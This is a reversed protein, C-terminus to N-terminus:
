ELFIAVDRDGELDRLNEENLVMGSVEEFYFPNERMYSRFNMILGRDVDEAPEHHSHMGVGNDGGLCYHESLLYCFYACRFSDM